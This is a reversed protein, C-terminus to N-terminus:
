FSYRYTLSVTGRDKLLAPDGNNGMVGFSNVAVAGTAPDKNYKGFYDVYLLDFKHRALYDISLGASYSGADKQLINTPSNGHLGRGYYLPMTLDAGPFVQFWTPAFNLDISVFDKTARNIDSYSSIGQFSGYPDSTVKLYNGWNFEVIYSAADFVPTRNILGLFNLVAHMTDGRATLVNGRSPLDITPIVAGFNLLPMNQRYSLEAGVSVGLIQQSYSVGYLHINDAYAFRFQGTDSDIHLQPIKDSFDRYYLGFTTGNLAEPSWRAGVGWDGINKPKIDNGRTVGFALVQQSGVGGNFLYDYPAMYSGAEPYRNPEWELFFQGMLTLTSAPQATVSINNLPRFLEKAGTNPVAFAKAVDIPMQAYSIGNLAANFGLGEGWFQTNRGVKVQVPMEAIEFKGFVFADLLEGSPGLYYRKTYSNIAMPNGNSDFANSTALDKNLNGKSYVPDYWGAGSLRFGYKKQYSVDLESLLDLRSTVIGSRFNSDGDNLDPNALVAPDAKNVRYGLNYRISNDWNVKVDENGTQIEFADVGGSMGLLTAMAVTVLGPRIYQRGGKTVSNDLAKDM